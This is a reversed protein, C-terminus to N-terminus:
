RDDAGAGPSLPSNRSAMVWDSIPSVVFKLNCFLQFSLCSDLFAIFLTMNRISCRFHWSSDLFLTKLHSLPGSGGM